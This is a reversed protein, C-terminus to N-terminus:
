RRTPTGLDVASVRAVEVAGLLVEYDPNVFLATPEEPLNEVVTEGADRLEVILDTQRGGATVRIPLRMDFFPEEQDCQVLLTWSGDRNREAAYRVTITPLGPRRVWTDFFPKWDQGTIKGLDREFDDVTPRTGEWEKILAQVVSAFRDHGLRAAMMEVVYPGKSYVLALRERPSTDLGLRVLAEDGYKDTVMRTQRAWEALQRRKEEPGLVTAKYHLSAYEAMGEVIWLGGSRKQMNKGVLAGWWEHAIEHCFLGEDLTGEIESSPILILGKFGLGVYEHGLSYGARLVQPAEVIALEPFRFPGCLREVEPLTKRVLRLIREQAGQHAPNLVCRIRTTGLSDEASPYRSLILVRPRDNLGGFSYTANRFGFKRDEALLTGDTVLQFREPYSFSVKGWAVISTDVVAPFWLFFPDFLLHDQSIHTFRSHEPSVSLPWGEWKVRFDPDMRGTRSLGSEGLGSETVRFAPDLALPAGGEAFELYRFHFRAEGSLMKRSPDITVQM